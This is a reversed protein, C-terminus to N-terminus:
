NPIEGINQSASASVERSMQITRKGGVSAGWSIELRIDASIQAPDYTTPHIESAVDFIGFKAPTVKARISDLPTAEYDELIRLGLEMANERERSTMSGQSITIGAMVGLLVVGLVLISVIMEALSTGRRKRMYGIEVM